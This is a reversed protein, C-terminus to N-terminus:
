KVPKLFKSAKSIAKKVKGRHDRPLFDILEELTDKLSSIIVRPDQEPQLMASAIPDPTEKKM